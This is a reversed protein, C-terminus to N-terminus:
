KTISEPKMNHQPRNQNHPPILDVVIDLGYIIGKKIM